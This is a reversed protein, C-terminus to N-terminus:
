PLLAGHRVVLLGPVLQGDRHAALVVPRRDHLVHEVRAAGFVLARHAHLVAAPVHDHVHAAPLDAGAVRLLRPSFACPSAARAWPSCALFCAVSECIASHLLATSVMSIPLSPM